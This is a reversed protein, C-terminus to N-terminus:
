KDLIFCQLIAETAVGYVNMFIAGITYSCIFFVLCPFTMGMLKNKIEPKNQVYIYGIYTASLSIALTGMMIFLGGLGEVLFYEVSNGMLTM